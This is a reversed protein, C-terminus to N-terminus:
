MGGYWDRHKHMYRGKRLVRVNRKHMRDVPPIHCQGFEAQCGTSCFESANGCSNSPGCFDGFTSRYCTMNVDSGCFGNWEMFLDLTGTTNNVVVNDEVSCLGYLPQCNGIGCDVDTNGCTNGLGCCLGM